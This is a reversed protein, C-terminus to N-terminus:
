GQREQQERLIEQRYNLVEAAERKAQKSANPDRLTAAAESVNKKSPGKRM